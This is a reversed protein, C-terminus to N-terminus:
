VPYHTRAVSAAAGTLLATVIDHSPVVASALDSSSQATSAISGLTGYLRMAGGAVVLERDPAFGFFTGTFGSHGLMPIKEEGVSLELRRFGVAQEAFTASPTSFRELVTTPIFEGGSIAAGLTLLDEVPAFLGAHGSVGGLAHATNGDGVEGRVPRDRWGAFDATTFPVPFPNQSAVMHFEYTDSDSSAAAGVADVPGYGAASLGLPAAVLLRFADTLGFGSVEEVIEGTLMLGIDSYRWTTGPAAVLPLARARELATARDDTECYLPWWPQLGASHTLLQEVTIDAKEAGDFGSLYRRAPARLDLRGEAVLLMVLVTTSAIKTVSAWDVLTDTRMPVGDSETSPLLAWGGAAVDTGSATRIGAVASAPHTGSEGLSLMVDVVDNSVTM